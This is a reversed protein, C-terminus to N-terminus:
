SSSCSEKLNPNQRLVSYLSFDMFVPSLTMEFGLALFMTMTQKFSDRLVAMTQKFCTLVGHLLSELKRGKSKHNVSVTQTSRTEAPQTSLKDVNFEPSAGRAM